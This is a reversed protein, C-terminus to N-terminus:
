YSNFKPIRQNTYKIAYCGTFSAPIRISGGIDTWISIPSGNM